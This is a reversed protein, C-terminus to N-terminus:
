PRLAFVEVRDGADTVVHWNNIIYGVGRRYRHSARPVVHRGVVLVVSGRVFRPRTATVRLSAMVQCRSPDEKRRITVLDGALPVNRGDVTEWYWGISLVKCPVMGALVAEYFVLDGTRVAVPTRDVSDM